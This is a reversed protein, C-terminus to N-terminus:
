YLSPFALAVYRTESSSISFSLHSWMPKKPMTCRGRTLPRQFPTTSLLCTNARAMMTWQYSHLTLHLWTQGFTERPLCLEMWSNLGTFRKIPSLRFRPTCETSRTWCSWRCSQQSKDIIAKKTPRSSSSSESRKGSTPEMLREFLSRSLGEDQARKSVVVPPLQKHDGM